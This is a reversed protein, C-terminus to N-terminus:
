RELSFDDQTECIISIEVFGVGNHEVDQENDLYGFKRGIVM